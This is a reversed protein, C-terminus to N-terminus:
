AAPDETLEALATLGPGVEGALVRQRAYAIRDARDAGLKEAAARATVLPEPEGWSVSAWVREELPALRARMGAEVEWVATLSWAGRTAATVVALQASASGLDVEIRRAPLGALTVDRAPTSHADPWTERVRALWRDLVDDPGAPKEGTTEAIAFGRQGATSAVGLDGTSLPSPAWGVPVEFRLARYLEEAEVVPPVTSFAAAAARSDRLWQIRPGALAIAAPVALCVVALAVQWGVNWRPRRQLAPPDLLAALIGGTVLGGFHAWNDTTENQLGVVFMVVLYPLIAPGFLRRSREGLLEPRLLGFVTVAAVLGFVGGSAGLAPRDPSGFMSLVSGGIVSAIYLAILNARGLARELSWGCYALWLMNLAIHAVGTHYFGMTLLRWIEGNELIATTLKPLWQEFAAYPADIRELWWIRIQVGILLATAVPAVGRSFAARFAVGADNRLAAYLELEAARVWGGGTLAGIRVETDPAIRGSRVREEWEEWTLQETRDGARIHVVPGRIPKYRQCRELFM